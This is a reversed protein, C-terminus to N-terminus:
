EKNQQGGKNRRLVWAGAAALALCLILSILADEGDVVRWLNRLSESIGAFLMALGFLQPWTFDFRNGQPKQSKTNEM